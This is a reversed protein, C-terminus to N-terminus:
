NLVRILIQLSNILSYVQCHVYQVLGTPILKQMEVIGFLFVLLNNVPENFKCSLASPLIMFSCINWFFIYQLWLDLFTLYIYFLISSSFAFLSTLFIIFAFSFYERELFCINRLFELFFSGLSYHGQCIFWTSIRLISLCAM